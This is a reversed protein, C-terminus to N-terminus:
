TLIKKKIEKARMQDTKLNMGQNECSQANKPTAPFIAYM